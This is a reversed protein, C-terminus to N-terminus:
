LLCEVMLDSVITSVRGDTTLLTVQFKRGLGSAPQQQGNGANISSCQEMSQLASAHGRYLDTFHKRWPLQQNLHHSRAVRASALDIERIGHLEFFFLLDRVGVQASFFVRAESVSNPIVSM